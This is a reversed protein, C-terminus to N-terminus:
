LKRVATAKWGKDEGDKINRRADLIEVEQLEVLSRFEGDGAEIATFHVFYDEGNEGHLFGFSGSFWKVVARIPFGM